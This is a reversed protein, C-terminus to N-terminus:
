KGEGGRWKEFLLAYAQLQVDEDLRDMDLWWYPALYEDVVGQLSDVTLPFTADNVIDDVAKNLTKPNVFKEQKLRKSREIVWKRFSSDWQRLITQVPTRPQFLFLTTGSDEHEESPSHWSWESHESMFLGLREAVEFIEDTKGEVARKYPMSVSATEVAVYNGSGLRVLHFFGTAHDEYPLRVYNSEVAKRVIESNRDCYGWDLVLGSREIVDDPLKHRPFGLKFKDAFLEALRDKKSRRAKDIQGLRASTKEIEELINVTEPKPVIPEDDVYHSYLSAKLERLRKIDADASPDKEGLESLIREKLFRAEATLPIGHMSPLMDMAAPKQLLVSVYRDIVEPHVAFWEKGAVLEDKFVQKIVTEIRKAEKSDAEITKYIKFNPNHTTYGAIRKDLDTTIGIKTNNGDTLIYIHGDM